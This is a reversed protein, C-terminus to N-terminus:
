FSITLKYMLFRRVIINDFIEDREIIGKMSKNRRDTHELSALISELKKSVRIVEKKPNNQPTDPTAKRPISEPLNVPVPIWKELRYLTLWPNLGLLM